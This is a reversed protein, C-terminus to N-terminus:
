GEERGESPARRSILTLVILVLYEDGDSGAKIDKNKHKELWYSPSPSPSWSLQTGPDSYLHRLLASDYVTDGREAQAPILGRPRVVRPEPSWSCPALLCVAGAAAKVCSELLLKKKYFQCIPFDTNSNLYVCVTGLKLDLRHYTRLINKKFHQMSLVILATLFPM